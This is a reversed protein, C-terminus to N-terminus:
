QPDTAGLHEKVAPHTQLMAVYDRQAEYDAKATNYEAEAKRYRDNARDRRAVRKTYDSVVKESETRRSRAGAAPAAVLEPAPTTEMKAVPTGAPADFDDDFDTM